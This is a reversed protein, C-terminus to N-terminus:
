NGGSGTSVVPMTFGGGQLVSLPSTAQNITEAQNAEAGLYATQDQAGTLANQLGSQITDAGYGQQLAQTSLGLSKGQLNLQGGQYGLSALQQELGLNAQGMQNHINGLNYQQQEALSGLATRNGVTNTAGSAAASGEQAQQALPYQYQLNALQAELGGGAVGGTGQTLGAQQQAFGQQQGLYGQELGLGQGSLAQQGLSNQYQQTSYGQQLSALFPALQTELGATGIASQGAALEPQIQSLLTQSLGTAPNQAALPTAGAGQGPEYAV